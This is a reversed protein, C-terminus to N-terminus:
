NKNWVFLVLNEERDCVFLRKKSIKLIWSHRTVSTKLQSLFRGNYNQLEVHFKSM